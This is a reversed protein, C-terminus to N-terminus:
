ASNGQSSDEPCLRRPLAEQASGGLCLEGLFSIRPACALGLIHTTLLGFTPGCAADKVSFTHSEAM